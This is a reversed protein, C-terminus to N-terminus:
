KAKALIRPVLAGLAAAGLYAFNQDDNAADRGMLVTVGKHKLQEAIGDARALIRAPTTGLERAAGALQDLSIGLHANEARSWNSQSVGLRGAFETQSINKSQCLQEVLGAVLRSYMTVNKIPM